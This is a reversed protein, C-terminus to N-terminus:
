FRNGTSERGLALAHAVLVIKGLFFLLFHQPVRLKTGCFSHSFSRRRAFVVFNSRKRQRDPSSSGGLPGAVSPRGDGDTGLPAAANLASAGDCTGRRRRMDTACFPSFVPNLGWSKRHRKDRDCRAQGPLLRFLCLAFSRILSHTLLSHPPPPAGMHVSGISYSSSVGTM